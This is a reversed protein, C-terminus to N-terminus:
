SADWSGVLLMMLPRFTAVAACPESSQWIHSLNCLQVSSQPLVACGASDLLGHRVGGRLGAPDADKSRLARDNEFLAQSPAPHTKAAPPRPGVVRHLNLCSPPPRLTRLLCVAADEAAQAIGWLCM